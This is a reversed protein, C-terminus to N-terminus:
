CCLLPCGAQAPLPVSWPIIGVINSWGSRKGKPSVTKVTFSFLKRFNIPKQGLELDFEYRAKGDAVYRKKNSQNIIFIKEAKKRVRKKWDNSSLIEKFNIKEESPALSSLSQSYSYIEAEKFNPLPTKDVTIRPLTWTLVVKEGQQSLQLNGVELPTTDLPAM